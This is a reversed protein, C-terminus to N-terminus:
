STGILGNALAFLVLEARTELRLKRMIHARHTDVTRVSIFLKKGIEQNTYGLALLQLVDRERESLPDLAPQDDAVVLQAGIEPDVYRRGSAVTRIASLLEGDSAHKPVYGCAGASIAQRVSSPAAQSSLVLVKSSPSVKALGPIAEYGSTRPLLLDLLILDPQLARAKVIAQEATGAEGVPNLDPESELRRRLASRLVEHDDVVLISIM